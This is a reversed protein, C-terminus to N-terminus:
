RFNEDIARLIQGVTGSHTNLVYIITPLQIEECPPNDVAPPIGAAERIFLPVALTCSLFCAVVPKPNMTALVEM